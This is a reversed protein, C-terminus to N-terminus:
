AKTNPKKEPIDERLKEFIVQQLLAAIERSFDKSSDAFGRVIPGVHIAFLRCWVSCSQNKLMSMLSVVRRILTARHWQRLIRLLELIALREVARLAKAPLFKV